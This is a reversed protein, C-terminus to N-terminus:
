MLTADGQNILPKDSFRWVECRRSERPYKVRRSRDREPVHPDKALEDGCEGTSQKVEGLSIFSDPTATSSIYFLTESSPIRQRPQM